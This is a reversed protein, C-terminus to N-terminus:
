NSQPMRSRGSDPVSAMGEVNAPLNEVVSGGLFGSIYKSKLVIKALQPKGPPESPLADAQLAPSGTRNRPRSSGRSFSIAIWELVRSRFIGMSPPAQYAVTWPTAFLRVRSLSKVKVKKLCSLSGLHSPSLSNVQWHLFCLLHPNSKQTPFIGQLHFHCGMGTEQM